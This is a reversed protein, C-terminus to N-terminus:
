ELITMQALQDKHDQAMRLRLVVVVFYQDLGLQASLYKVIEAVTTVFLVLCREQAVLDETEEVEVVSATGAVLAVIEETVELDAV